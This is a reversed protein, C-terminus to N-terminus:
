TWADPLAKEIAELLHASLIAVVGVIPQASPPILTQEPMAMSWVAFSVAAAVIPWWPFGLSANTKKEALYALVVFVPVLALGVWFMGATAFWPMHAEIADAAAVLAIYVALVETPIFHALTAIASKAPDTSSKDGDNDGPARVSATGGSRASQRKIMATISM